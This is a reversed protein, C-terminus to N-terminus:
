LYSKIRKLIKSAAPKDPNVAGVRVEVKTSDETIKHIDIWIKKGDAYESRLQTVTAKKVEKILELNFSSFAKKSASIVREYPSEFQQTLKGSLWVATGGGAAGAAFIALCGYMNALLLASFVFVTIKRFM